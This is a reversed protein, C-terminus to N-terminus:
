INFLFLLYFRKIKQQYLRVYSSTLIIEKNQYPSKSWKIANWCLTILEMLLLSFITIYKAIRWGGFLDLILTLM